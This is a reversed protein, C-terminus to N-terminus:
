GIIKKHLPLLAESILLKRLYDALQHITKIPKIIINSRFIYNRFHHLKINIHKTRLRFKNTTAIKLAGSNDKFVSHTITPTSVNIDLGYEKMKNLIYILPITEQLIYALGTYESETSSLFDLKYNHNRHLLPM